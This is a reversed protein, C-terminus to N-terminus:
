VNVINTQVEKTKLINKDFFDKVCKMEDEYPAFNNKLDIVPPSADLWDFFEKSMEKTNPEANGFKYIRIEGNKLESKSYSIDYNISTVKGNTLNETFNLDIIKGNSLEFFSWFFKNDYPTEDEQSEM